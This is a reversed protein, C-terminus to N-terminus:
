EFLDSSIPASVIRLREVDANHVNNLEEIEQVLFQALITYLM